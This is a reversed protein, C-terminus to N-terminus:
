RLIEEYVVLENVLACCLNTRSQRSLSLKRKGKNTRERKFGTGKGGLMSDIDSFDDWLHETRIVYVEKGPFRHISQNAYYGYNYPNVHWM